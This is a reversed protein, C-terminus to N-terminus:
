REKRQAMERWLITCLVNRGRCGLACRFVVDDLHSLTLSDQKYTLASKSQKIKDTHTALHPLVFDNEM